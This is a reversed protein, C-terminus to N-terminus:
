MVRHNNIAVDDYSSPQVSSTATNNGGGAPNGMNGDENHPLPPASSPRSPSESRTRSRQNSRSRSRRRRNSINM